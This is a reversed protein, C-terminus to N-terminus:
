TLGDRPLAVSDTAANNRIVLGRARSLRLSFFPLSDLQKPSSKHYKALDFSRLNM